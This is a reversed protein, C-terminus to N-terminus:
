HGTEEPRVADCTVGPSDRRDEEPVAGVAGATPASAAIVQTSLIPAQATIAPAPSSPAPPPNSPPPFEVKGDFVKTWTQNYVSRYVIELRLKRLESKFHERHSKDGAKADVGIIEDLKGAQIADTPFYHNFDIEKNHGMKECIDASSLVTLNPSDVGEATLIWSDIIALGPGCNHVTITYRQAKQSVDININLLPRVAFKNHTRTLILNVISVNFAAFAVLIGISSASRDLLVEAFDSLVLVLTLGWFAFITALTVAVIFRPTRRVLSSTTENTSTSSM